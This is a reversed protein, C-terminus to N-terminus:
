LRIFLVLSGCAVGAFFVWRREGIGGFLAGAGGLVGAIAILTAGAAVDDSLTWARSGSVLMVIGIAWGAIALAAARCFDLLIALAHRGIIWRPETEEVEAPVAALRENVRRLAAVSAEGVREWLLALLLALVLLTFPTGVPAAAAYAGTAAVAATGSEPYRAAGIPLATLAFSEVAAGILAGAAPEGLLAGLISAAVFPRSIMFQGFSTADLGVLGGWALM